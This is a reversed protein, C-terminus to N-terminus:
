IPNAVIAFETGGVVQTNAAGVAAVAPKTKGRGRDRRRVHIAVAVEIHQSSVRATGAVHQEVRAVAGERRTDPLAGGGM